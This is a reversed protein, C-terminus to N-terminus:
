MQYEARMGERISCKNRSFRNGSTCSTHVFSWAFGASDSCAFVHIYSVCDSHKTRILFWYSSRRLYKSTGSFRDTPCAWATGAAVISAGSLLSSTSRTRQSWGGEQRTQVVFNRLSPIRKGKPDGRASNSM